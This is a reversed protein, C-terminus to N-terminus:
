IKNVGPTSPASNLSKELEQKQEISAIYNKLFNNEGKLELELEELESLGKCAYLQECIQPLSARCHESKLLQSYAYSDYIDKHSELYAKLPYISGIMDPANTEAIETYLLGAEFPDLCDVCIPYIKTLVSKLHPPMSSIAMQLVMSSFSEQTRIPNLTTMCKLLEWVRSSEQVSSSLASQAFTESFFICLYTRSQHMEFRSFESLKLNAMFDVIYSGPCNFKRNQWMKALLAISALQPHAALSHNKILDWIEPHYDSIKKLQSQLASAINLSNM